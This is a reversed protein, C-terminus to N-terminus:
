DGGDLAQLQASGLIQALCSGRLDPEIGAARRPCGPPLRDPRRPGPLIDYHIVDERSGLKTYLAVAPEDGYDAQVFIISIGRQQATHRITNILETAIGQRRLDEAVALDYIYFESREQEFKNLVYGALGGVVQGAAFAAVAIFTDTALLRTLYAESPQHHLYSEPDDFADSFLGLMQRLAPADSAGLVRISRTATM